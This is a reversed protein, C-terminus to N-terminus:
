PSCSQPEIGELSPINKEKGGRESRSQHGCLSGTYQTGPLEKGSLLAAPAHFQGSAEM